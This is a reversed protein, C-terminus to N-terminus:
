PRKATLSWSSYTDVGVPLIAFLGLILWSSYSVREFGMGVLQEVLSDCDPDQSPGEAFVTAWHRATKTFDNPNKRYQEAVVADQPDDPEPSALLAQISLLVTRLSM